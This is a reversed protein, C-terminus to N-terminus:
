KKIQKVTLIVSVLALGVAIVQIRDSFLAAQQPSTAQNAAHWCYEMFVVFLAWPGAKKVLAEWDVGEAVRHLEGSLEPDAAIGKAQREADEVEAATLRKKGILDAFVQSESIGEVLLLMAGPTASTRFKGVIDAIAQRSEPPPQTRLAAEFSAQIEDMAAHQRAAFQGASAM